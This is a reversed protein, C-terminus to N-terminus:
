QTIMSIHQPTPLHSNPQPVQGLSSLASTGRLDASPHVQAAVCHM